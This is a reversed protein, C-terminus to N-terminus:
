IRVFSLSALVFSSVEVDHLSITGDELGVAIVKGDPRWCLSTVSKGLIFNSVNINLYGFNIVFIVLLVLQYLLSLYWTIHDMAKALQVPSAFDELRRYSHSVSGEGSEM